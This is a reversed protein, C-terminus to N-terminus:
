HSQFLPRLGLKQRVMQWEERVRPEHSLEAARRLSRESGSLDNLKFLCEGLGAWAFWDQPYHRIARNFIPVAEDCRGEEDLSLAQQVHARTLDLTIPANNPAIQHAVTYVTLDDKWMGEQKVTFVSFAAAIVVAVALLPLRSKNMLRWGTALLIMLGCLPLYTYRGHLFDGPDLANLNLALLLPLILLLAGLLLAMRIHKADDSVDDRGVRKWAWTFMAALAAVVCAVGLLPLMVDHVSFTNVLTPDAFAHSRVPWFVVKVYFWLMGPWSLLQTKWSLHQTVGGLRGSLANLRFLLYIATAALYLWSERLAFAFRTALRAERPAGAKNEASSGCPLLFALVFIVVPLEIATDKTFLAV